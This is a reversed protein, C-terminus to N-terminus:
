GDCRLASFSGSVEGDAFVVDFTGEVVGGIGADLRTITITGSRVLRHCPLAADTPCAQARAEQGTLSGNDPFGPVVHFTGTSANALDITLNDGDHIRECAVGSAALRLRRGLEFSIAVAESSALTLGEVTGDIRASGSHKPIDGCAPIALAVLLPWKM